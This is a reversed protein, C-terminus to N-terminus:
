IDFKVVQEGGGREIKILKKAVCAYMTRTGGASGGGEALAEKLKNLSMSFGPQKLLTLLLQCTAIQQSTPQGPVTSPALSSFSSATPSTPSPIQSSLSELHALTEKARPPRSRGSISGTPDFPHGPMIIEGVSNWIKLVIKEMEVNLFVKPKRASERPGAGPTQLQSNAPLPTEPLTTGEQPTPDLPFSSPLKKLVVTQEGDGDNLELESGLEEELKDSPDPMVSDDQVIDHKGNDLSDDDVPLGLSSLVSRPRPVPSTFSMVSVDNIDVEEDMLKETFRLTRASAAPTNWFMEEQPEPVTLPSPAKALSPPAPKSKPAPNSTRLIDDKQKRLETLRAQLDQIRREEDVATSEQSSPDSAPNSSTLQQLTESLGRINQRTADLRNILGQVQSRARPMPRISHYRDLYKLAAQAYVEPEYERPKTMEQKRSPPKRLPTAGPFEVRSIMGRAESETPVHSPPHILTFLGLESSDIDRILDGLATNLVATTFLGDSTPFEDASAKISKSLSTLHDIQDSLSPM